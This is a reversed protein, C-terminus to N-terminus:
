PTAITVALAQLSTQSQRQSRIYTECRNKYGCYECKRGLRASFEQKEIGSLINQIQKKINKRREESWEFEYCVSPNLFLLVCKNINVGLDSLMWAYSDMQFEYSRGFDEVKERSIKNTKYDALIWEGKQNKFLLDIIGELVFGQHSFYVPYEKHIVQAKQIEKFYPMHLFNQLLERVGSHDSNYIFSQRAREPNAIVNSFNTQELVEHVSTGLSAGKNKSRLVEPIEHIFKREFRWPCLLYEQLATISYRRAPSYLPFDSAIYIKSQSAEQRVVAPHTIPPYPPTEVNCQKILDPQNKLLSLWSNKSPTSGSLYLFQQARTTAVYFLRLSEEREKEEEKSKLIKKLSSEQWSFNDDKTSLGVGEDLLLLSPFGGAQFGLDPLFVIPFELGKSKHISMLRVGQMELLEEDSAVDRFRKEKLMEVFHVFRELSMGESQSALNMFKELRLKRQLSAASHFMVEDFPTQRRIETLIELIRYTNKTKRFYFILDRANKLKKKESASIFQLHMAKELGYPISGVEKYLLYVTEDSISFFPSRLTALLSLIDESDCITKLFCVLDRIELNEFFAAEDIVFSTINLQTLKQAYLPAYNMARFLLVIDSLKFGQQILKQIQLAIWTAEKIRLMERTEKNDPIECFYVHSQGSQTSLLDAYGMSKNRFLPAFLSNVFNLINSGSRYNHALDYDVGGRSQIHNKIEEFVEVEAGRFRYISQKPDGIIFLQTSSGCLQLIIDKQIHDTDQFEDVMVLKLRNQYERLVLPKIQFITKTKLILDEFDLVGAAEKLIEYNKSLESYFEKFNMVLHHTKAEASLDFAVDLDECMQQIQKPSPHKQFASYTKSRASLFKQMMNRLHFFGFEEILVHPLANLSKEFAEDQLTLAQTESLIEFLPNLEIELAHSRLVSSCFGHITTMWLSADDLAQTALLVRNKMESAAKETFTIALIEEPKYGKQLAALYKECLVTTKGCGAGSVLCIDRGFEKVVIEQVVNLYM